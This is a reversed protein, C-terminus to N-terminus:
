RREPRGRGPLCTRPRCGEPRSRTGRDPGPGGGGERGGGGGCWRARRGRSSIGPRGPDPGKEASTAWGRFRAGQRDGRPPVRKRADPPKTPPPRRTGEGGPARVRLRIDHLHPPLEALGPSVHTRVNGAGDKPKVPEPPCPSGARGTSHVGPPDRKRAVKHTPLTQPAVSFKFRETGAARRLSVRLKELSASRVDLFARGLRKDPTKRTRLHRWCVGWGFDGGHRRAEAGETNPAASGARVLSFGHRIPM